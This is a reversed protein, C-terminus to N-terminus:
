RNAAELQNVYRQLRRVEGELQQTAQRGKDAQQEAAERGRESQSAAESLSGVEREKARAPCALTLNTACLVPRM